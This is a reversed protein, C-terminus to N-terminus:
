DEMKHVRESIGRVRGNPGGYLAQIGKKDDYSLDSEDQGNGSPYMIADRDHSHSLGLTHGMEHCIAWILSVGTIFGQTILICYPQAMPVRIM